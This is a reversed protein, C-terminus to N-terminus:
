TLEHSTYSQYSHLLQPETTLVVEHLKKMIALRSLIAQSRPNWLVPEFRKLIPRWIEKQRFLSLLYAILYSLSWVFDIIPVPNNRSVACLQMQSNWRPSNRESLSNRARRHFLDDEPLLLLKQFEPPQRRPKPVPQPNWNLRNAKQPTKQFELTMKMWEIWDTDRPIRPKDADYQLWHKLCKGDTCEFLTQFVCSSSM